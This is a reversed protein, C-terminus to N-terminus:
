LSSAMETLAGKRGASCGFSTFEIRVGNVLMAKPMRTTGANAGKM